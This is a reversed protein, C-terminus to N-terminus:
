NFRKELKKILAKINKVTTHRRTTDIIGEEKLTQIHRNVVARTSGVMSAIEDNPLDNILELQHSSEDINHLILKALRTPIDSLVNDTLNIELLRMKHGLYPLFTKNIEPHQEVWQRTVDMPACLVDVVDLTKFNTTHKQGDLLSIVDFVDNKTLLFLTFERDTQQDVQYVKLRGKIIVHFRRYAEPKDFFDTDKEWRELTFGQLLSKLTEEDLNKFIRHKKLAALSYEFDETGNNM